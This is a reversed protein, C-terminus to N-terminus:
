VPSGTPEELSVAYAASEVIEPSFEAIAPVITFEATGLLGLSRPAPLRDSVLWLEYRKDGEQEPAVRRVMLSKHDPELTVLFAPTTAPAQLVAVFRGPSPGPVEVTRVVERVPEAPPRPRLQDPLLDPAVATTVTIGALAVAFAALGAALSRWRQVSRVLRRVAEDEEREPRLVLARGTGALPIVDEPDVALDPATGNSVPAGTAGADLEDRLAAGLLVEPPPIKSPEEATAPTTDSAPEPEPTETAPSK